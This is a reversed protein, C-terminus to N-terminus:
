KYKYKDRYALYISRTTEESIANLYGFNPLRFKQITEDFLQKM